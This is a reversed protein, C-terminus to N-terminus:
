LILRGFDGRLTDFFEANRIEKPYLGQNLIIPEFIMSM